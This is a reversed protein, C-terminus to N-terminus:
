VRHAKEVEETDDAINDEYTWLGSKYPNRNVWIHKLPHKRSARQPHSSCSQVVSEVEWFVVGEVTANVEVTRLGGDDDNSTYSESM